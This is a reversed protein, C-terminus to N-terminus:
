GGARLTSPAAVRCHVRHKLDRGNRLAEAAADPHLDLLKIGRDVTSAFIVEMANLEPQTMNVAHLARANCMSRMYHDGRGCFHIAGGGLADLLRQDYPKIFEEYMAPSFNMASDDRLMIRGKHLMGWHVAYSEPAPPFIAYWKKIFTVYYDCALDLLAKIREPQDFVDIFIGSGWLLEVVDMPGQLDPHVVHVGARIAPYRRLLEAVREGFQFVRAGLGTSPDPPGADLLRVIADPGSLPLATPLTNLDRDMVFLEAGLATPLIGTGYNARIWLLQGTLPGADRGAHHLMEACQGFQQLLMLDADGIADSVNVAPWAVGPQAAKHRQPTFLTDPCRNETFAIWEALLRAEQEPDIQRELDSLYDDIRIM